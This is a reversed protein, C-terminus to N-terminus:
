PKTMLRDPLTDKERSLGARNDFIRQLNWVREGICAICVKVEGTKRVIAETTEGTTLDWLSAADKIEADQDHIALYVPKIAKGTIVIGELGARKM